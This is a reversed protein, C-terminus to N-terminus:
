HGPTFVACWVDMSALKTGSELRDKSAKTADRLANIVSKEREDKIEADVQQAFRERLVAGVEWSGDLMADGTKEVTQRELVLGAEEAIKIIAQPSLVTRINSVSEAKRCELSAETLSALVHPFAAPDSATLSWEALCIRKVRKSLAVFTERLIAPSPFYWICHALVATDFEVATSGLYEIPDAQLFGIRNGFTSKTLHAQAEALTWPAGTIFLM